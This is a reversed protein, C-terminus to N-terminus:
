EGKKGGKSKIKQMLFEMNKIRESGETIIQSYRAEAMNQYFQYETYNEEYLDDYIEEVFIQVELKDIYDNLFLDFQALLKLLFNVNYEEDNYFIEDIEKLKEKIALLYDDEEINYYVAAIILKQKLKVLVKKLEEKDKM